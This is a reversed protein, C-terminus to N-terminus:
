DGVIIFFICAAVVTIGVIGLVLQTGIGSQVVAKRRGYGEVVAFYRWIGLVFAAIALAYFIAGLPIAAAREAAGPHDSLHFSMIIATAVIALYTALRLYSLFTRENACFDRM